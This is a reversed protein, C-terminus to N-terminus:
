LHDKASDGECQQATTFYKQIKKQNASKQRHELCVSQLTQFGRVATAYALIMGNWPNIEMFTGFDRDLLIIAESFNDKLFQPKPSLGASTRGSVLGYKPSM